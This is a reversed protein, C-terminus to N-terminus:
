RRLAPGARPTAAVAPASARVVRNRGGHKAEYLARDAARLLAEFSDGDAPAHAAGISVTVGGLAGNGGHLPLTQIRLRLQEARALAQEPTIDVLVLMFEEGGFRAAVDSGRTCQQLVAAIQRLVEDGVDHGHQDNIRKFHDVDVMLLAVGTGCAAAAQRRGRALERQVSEELFRRNYLNTLPDRISQQRLSERLRLNGLALAVQETAQVRAREAEAEAEADVLTPLDLVLLGMPEGHASLPLCHLGGLGDAQGAKLHACVGSGGDIPQRFPQSRRLAWCDQPELAPAFGARGWDFALRLQNHTPLHLYMAGSAAQMLGPLRQWLVEIAQPGDNCSQLQRGLESLAGAQDNRAAMAALADALRDNRQALALRAERAYRAAVQLRWVLVALLLLNLGVSLGFTLYNIRVAAAHDARLGQLRRLEAAELAAVAVRVADIGAEATGDAPQPQPGAAGGGTRLRLSGEISRLAADVAREVEGLLPAAGPVGQLGLALAARLPALERVAHEYRQLHLPQGTLLFGRRGLEADLMRRTLASLEVASERARSLAQNADVLRALGHSTLAAAALILAAVLVTLVGWGVPSTARDGPM